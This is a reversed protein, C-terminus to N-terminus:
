YIHNAKKYIKIKYLNRFDKLYYKLLLYYIGISMFSVLISYIVNQKGFSFYAIFLSILILVTPIGYLLIVTKLVERGLIEIVIHDGIEYKGDYKIFIHNVKGSKCIDKTTCSECSATNILEIKMQGNKIETVFGEERLIEEYM